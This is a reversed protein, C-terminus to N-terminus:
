KLMKKQMKKGDQAGQLSSEFRKEASEGASEM